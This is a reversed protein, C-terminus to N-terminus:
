RIGKECISKASGDSLPKGDTHELIMLDQDFPESQFWENTRWAVVACQVDAREGHRVSGV